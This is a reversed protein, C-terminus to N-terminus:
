AEQRTCPKNGRHERLSHPDAGIDKGRVFIDDWELIDADRLEVLQQLVAM